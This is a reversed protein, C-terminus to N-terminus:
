LGDCVLIASVGWAESRQFFFFIMTSRAMAASDPSCIAYDNKPISGGSYYINSVLANERQKSTKFYSGQLQFILENSSCSISGRLLILLIFTILHPFCPYFPLKQSLGSVLFGIEQELINVLM